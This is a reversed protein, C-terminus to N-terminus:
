FIRLFSGATRWVAVNETGNGLESVPPKRLDCGAAQLLEDADFGIAEAYQRLYSITFIGGPLLHFEENEIAQLFRMNIKTAGSIEELGLGSESRVGRLNLPSRMSACGGPSPATQIKM